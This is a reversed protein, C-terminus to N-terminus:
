RAVAAALWAAATWLVFLSRKANPTLIPAADRAALAEGNNLSLATLPLWVVFSVLSAMLLGAICSAGGFVPWTLVAAVAHPLGPFWAGDTAPGVAAFTRASFTRM